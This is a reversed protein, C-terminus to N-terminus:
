EREERAIYAHIMESLEEVTYTKQRNDDLLCLFDYMTAKQIRLIEQDTM